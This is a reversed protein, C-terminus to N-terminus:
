PVDLAAPAFPRRADVHIAGLDGRQADPDAAAAGEMAQREVDVHVKFRERPDIRAAVRPQLHHRHAVQAARRADLRHLRRQQLVQGGLQVRRQLGCGALPGLHSLPAILSAWVRVMGSDTTPSDVSTGPSLCSAPSLIARDGTWNVSAGTRRLGDQIRTRRGLLLATATSLLLSRSFRSIVTQSSALQGFMWSHKPCPVAVKMIRPSTQVRRQENQSTAWPRGFGGSAPSGKLRAVVTASMPRFYTTTVLTSRSSRRSPPACCKTSQMRAIRSCLGFVLISVRVGSKRPLPRISRASSIKAASGGSTNLWLM